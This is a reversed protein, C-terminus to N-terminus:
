LAAKKAYNMSFSFLLNGRQLKIGGDLAPLESYGDLYIFGDRPYLAYQKGAPVFGARGNCSVLFVMGYFGHEHRTQGIVLRCGAAGTEPM